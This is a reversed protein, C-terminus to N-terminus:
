GMGNYATTDHSFTTRATRLLARYLVTAKTAETM